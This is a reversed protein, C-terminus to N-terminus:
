MDDIIGSTYIISESVFILTDGCEKCIYYSLMFRKSDVDYHQKITEGAVRPAYTRTIGEILKSSLGDSSYLIDQLNHQSQMQRPLGKQSIPYIWGFWSQLNADCEDMM